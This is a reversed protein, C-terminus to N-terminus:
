PTDHEGESVATVFSRQSSTMRSCRYLRAAIFATNDAEIPTCGV